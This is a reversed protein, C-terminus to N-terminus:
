KLLGIETIEKCYREVMLRDADTLYQANGHAARNRARHILDFKDKWVSHKDNNFRSSFGSVWYHGIIKLVGDLTIIDLLQLEIGFSRRERARHSKVSSPDIGLKSALQSDAALMQEFNAQWETKKFSLIGPMTINILEKLHKEASLITEFIPFSLKLTRLYDTFHPSVSIYGDTEDYILGLALLIDIDYRTINIQPGLVIGVVKEMQGDREIQTIIDKYYQLIFPSNTEYIKAISAATGKTQKENVIHFGFKSLLYPLNGCYYQLEKKDEDSITIDYKQFVEYYEEMDAENFGCLTIRDFVGHFTSNEPSCEEIAELSRRSILITTIKYGQSALTRILEFYIKKGEFVKKAADFEDIVLITRLNWLNLKRFVSKVNSSLITYASTNLPDIAAILDFTDKLKSYELEHESLQSAVSEMIFKWLDIFSDFDSLAIRVYIVGMQTIAENNFYNAILSSKGVRTLGVISLAWDSSSKLIRQQLNELDGKRGIFSVGTAERGIQFINEGLM